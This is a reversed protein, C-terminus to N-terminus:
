SSPSICPYLSVPEFPKANKIPSLNPEVDPLLSAIRENSQLRGSGLRMHSSGPRSTGQLMQLIGPIIDLSEMLEGFTRPAPKASNDDTRLKVVAPVKLEITGCKMERERFYDAMDVWGPQTLEDLKTRKQQFRDMRQQVTKSITGMVWGPEDDESLKGQETDEDDEEDEEHDLSALDSPSDRIADLMEEFTQGPERSTLGGSEASNMDEQEQKIGTEADEVRKRAVATEREM